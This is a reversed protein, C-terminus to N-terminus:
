TEQLLLNGRGSNVITIEHVMTLSLSDFGKQWIMNQLDSEVGSSSTIKSNHYYKYYGILSNLKITRKTNRNRKLILFIM